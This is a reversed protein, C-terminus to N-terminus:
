PKIQAIVAKSIQDRRRERSIGNEDVGQRIRDLDVIKSTKGHWMVHRYQTARWLVDAYKTDRWVPEGNGQGEDFRTPLPVCLELHVREALDVLPAVWRIMHAARTAIVSEKWDEEEKEQRRRGVRVIPKREATRGDVLRMMAQSSLCLTLRLEPSFTSGFFECLATWERLSAESGQLLEDGVLCSYHLQRLSALRHCPM